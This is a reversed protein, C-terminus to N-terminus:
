RHSHSETEIKAAEHLFNRAHAIFNTGLFNSQDNLEFKNVKTETGNNENIQFIDYELGNLLCFIADASDQNKKCVEPSHRTRKQIGYFNPLVEFIISPQKTQLTEQLGRLVSLEAGEVDIKIACIDSIKLERLVEDGIRTQVHFTKLIEKPIDPQVVLSAMEDYHDQTYFTSIGNSDSLALPLIMASSLHNLQLFKHVDFCCSIQPEFGIYARKRDIALIKLLTQGVNVGVDIFVGPRSELQRRLVDVLYAEHRKESNDLRSAHYGHFQFRENGIKVNKGFQYKIRRAHSAIKELM